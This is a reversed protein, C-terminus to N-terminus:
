IFSNRCCSVWVLFLMNARSMGIDVERKGFGERKKQDELGKVRENDGSLEEKEVVSKYRM